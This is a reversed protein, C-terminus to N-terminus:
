KLRELLLELIGLLGFVCVMVHWLVTFLADRDKEANRAIVLCILSTLLCFEYHKM